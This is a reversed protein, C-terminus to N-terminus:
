QWPPTASANPGSTSVRGDLRGSFTTLVRAAALSRATTSKLLSKSNGARAVWGPKAVVDMEALM